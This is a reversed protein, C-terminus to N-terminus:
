ADMTHLNSLCFGHMAVARYRCLSCGQANANFLDTCCIGEACMYYVQHHGTLGFYKAHIVIFSPSLHVHVATAHLHCFRFLVMNKINEPIRLM